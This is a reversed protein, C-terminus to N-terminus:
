SWLGQACGHVLDSFQQRVQGVHGGVAGVQGRKVDIRTAARKSSACSTSTRAKSDTSFPQRGCHGPTRTNVDFQDPAAQRTGPLLSRLQDVRAPDADVSHRGRLGGGGDRHGGRQGNVRAPLPVPHGAARVLQDAREIREAYGNCTPAAEVGACRCASEGLDQKVAARTLHDGGVDAVALQGPRQSRIRAHRHM